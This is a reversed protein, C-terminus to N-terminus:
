SVDICSAGCDLDLISFTGNGAFEQAAPLRGVWDYIEGRWEGAFEIRGSSDLSPQQVEIPGTPCQRRTRRRM